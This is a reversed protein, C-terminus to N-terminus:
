ASCQLKVRRQSYPQDSVQGVRWYRWSSKEEQLVGIINYEEKNNYSGGSPGFERPNTGSGWNCSGM